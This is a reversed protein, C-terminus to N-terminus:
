EQEGIWWARADDLKYTAATLLLVAIVAWYSFNLAAARWADNICATM